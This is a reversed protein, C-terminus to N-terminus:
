DYERVKHFYFSSVEYATREEKETESIQKTYLRSQIRGEIQVHTGVELSSAFKADNGWVIIPIFDTKKTGRNVALLIDAIELGMPTKRYIVPKGINGDLYVYNIYKSGNQLKDAYEEGDPDLINCEKAFVFLELHKKEENMKNYSRFEGMIEVVTGNTLRDMKKMCRSSIIVPVIDVNGSTRNVEIHMKYYDVGYSQHSLVPAEKVTGLILANNNENM